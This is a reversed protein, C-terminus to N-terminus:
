YFDTPKVYIYMCKKYLFLFKFIWKKQIWIFTNKTTIAM